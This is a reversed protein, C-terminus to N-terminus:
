IGSGRGRGSDIQGPVRRPQLLAVAADVALQLRRRLDAAAVEDVLLALLVDDECASTRFSRASGRRLEARGALHDRCRRSPGGRAPLCRSAARAPARSRRACAVIANVFVAASPSPRRSRPAAAGALRLFDVVQAVCRSADRSFTPTSGSSSRATTAVARTARRSARELRRVALDAARREEAEIGGIRRKRGAPQGSASSSRRM